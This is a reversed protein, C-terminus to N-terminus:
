QIIIMMGYPRDCEVAGIDVGKGFKRPNGYFDKATDMWTADYIGKDRLPSGSPLSYKKASKKASFLVSPVAVPDTGANETSVSHSLTSTADAIEVNKETEDATNYNGVIINNVANGSGALYLGAPRESISCTNSIITCNQIMDKSSAYIGGYNASENRAVVSNRIVAGGQLSVAGNRKNGSDYNDAIYCRDILSSGKAYIVLGYGFDRKSARTYCNTIVSDVVIGNETYIAATGYNGRDSNCQNFVCNTIIGETMSIAGPNNDAGCKDFTFGSVVAEANQLRLASWDDSSKTFTTMEPGYLSEIRCRTNLKVQSSINYTGKDVFLTVDDTLYQTIDQIDTAATAPTAYPPAANDNTEKLYVTKSLATFYDKKEIQYTQGNLITKFRVTIVGPESFTRVVNLGSVGNPNGAGPETGDFTWWSQAADLSHSIPLVAATFSVKSPVYAGDRTYSIGIAFENTDVEYCGLDVSEGIKRPRGDLDYLGLEALIEDDGADFATAAPSLHFDGNNGDIFGPNETNVTVLGLRNNWEICNKVSVTKGSIYIGAGYEYAHNNVVTCNYVKASGTAYIGGGTVHSFNGCILSNRIIGKNIYVGGGWSSGGSKVQNDRIVCRDIIATAKANYMSVAGEQGGGGSCKSYLNTFLSDVILGDTFLVCPNKNNVTVFNCVVCNTVMGNDMRLGYGIDKAEADHDKGNLIINSLVAKENKLYLAADTQQTASCFLHPKETAGVITVANTVLAQSHYRHWGPGVFITSENEAINLADLLNTAANEWSDYPYNNGGNLDVYLKQGEGYVSFTLTILLLFANITQNIKNM